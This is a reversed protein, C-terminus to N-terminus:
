LLLLLSDVILQCLHLVRLDVLLTFVYNLLILVVLHLHFVSQQIHPLYPLVLLFLLDLLVEFLDVVSCEGYDCRVELFVLLLISCRILEISIVVVGRLFLFFLVIL